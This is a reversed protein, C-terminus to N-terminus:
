WPGPYTIQGHQLDITLADWGQHAMIEASFPAPMALWGSAAPRGERWLSKPRNTRM